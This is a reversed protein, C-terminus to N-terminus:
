VARRLLTPPAFTGNPLERVLESHVLSVLMPHVGQAATEADSFFGEKVALDVLEERSMSGVENLRHLFLDSLAVLPSSQVPPSVHGYYRQEFEMFKSITALGSKLDSIRADREYKLREVTSEFNSCAAKIQDDILAAREELDSRIDRM